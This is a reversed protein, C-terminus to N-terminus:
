SHFSRNPNPNPNPRSQVNSRNFAGGSGKPNIKQEEVLKVIHQSKSSVSYYLGNKCEVSDSMYSLLSIAEARTPTMRQGTM